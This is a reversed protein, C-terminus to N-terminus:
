PQWIQIPLVNWFPYFYVLNGLLTGFQWLIYWLATFYELSCCFLDFNKMGLGEIIIKTQFYVMQCGQDADGRDSVDM